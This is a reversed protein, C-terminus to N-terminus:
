KWFSGSRTFVYGAGRVPSVLGGSQESHAGVVVTDGSVAASEGFSDVANGDSATLKQQETWVAGSRTYVYASGSGTGGDDDEHAGVIATDGSAAISWGFADGTAPDSATLKQQESWVGASRTFVYASGSDTVGTDDIVAGVAATEGDVAVSWGFVDGGAADSATLKQQESWVGGSRTFVYAAGSASGVDDDRPAGAIVTDGSIGVTWGFRDGGAADSATLKRQQTWVGASRTFVYAAGTENGATDDAYAGAVVTNGSIGVSYGLQDGAEGDSAILKQQETWVDGTRTFIYVSGAAFGADDDGHSGIAITDGSIAVSFGFNDSAEADSAALEAQLTWSSNGDFKYIRVVGANDLGFPATLSAGIVMTDGELAVSRGSTGTPFGEDPNPLKMRYVQAVASDVSCWNFCLVALVLGLVGRSFGNELANVDGAWLAINDGVRRICGFAASETKPIIAQIALLKQLIHNFGPKLFLYM